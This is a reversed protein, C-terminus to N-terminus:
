QVFVQEGNQNHSLNYNSFMNQAYWTTLPYERIQKKDRKRTIFFNISKGKMMDWVSLICKELDLKTMIQLM